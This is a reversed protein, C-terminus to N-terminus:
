VVLVSGQVKSSLLENRVLYWPLGVVQQQQVLLKEEEVKMM